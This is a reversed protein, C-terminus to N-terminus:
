EEEKNIFYLNYEHILDDIRDIYMKTKSKNNEPYASILSICQPLLKDLFREKDQLIAVEKMLEKLMCSGGSLIKTKNKVM